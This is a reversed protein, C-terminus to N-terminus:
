FGTLSPSGPGLLWPGRVKQDTERADKRGGDRGVRAPGSLNNAARDHGTYRGFRSAAQMGREGQLTISPPVRWDTM